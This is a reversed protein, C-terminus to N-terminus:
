WESFAAGQGHGLYNWKVYDLARKWFGAAALDSLAAVPVRQSIEGNVRIEIEGVIDGASIPATLPTAKPVYVSETEAGRPITILGSAAPRAAVFDEIGQFVPLERIKSSDFMRRNDFASFGFALLKESERRRASASDTKMVVAILRRGGRVASAALCYGAAKTYGTKIGDAGAFADLLGNRNAQTIDNYTFEREAYIPYYEPFDLITRRSMLAVDRASSYHGEDPLGAANAFRTNQLGFEAAQANMAAVFASEDGYLGEALAVSADNGSQVIIGFLIDRVTVDDGARLFTKSGVVNQAWARRSVRIQQEFSLAGERLARFGLYATMIKTLSAPPLRLDANREALVAGTAADLLIYSESSVQPPVPAAAASTWLLATAIAAAFARSHFYTRKM